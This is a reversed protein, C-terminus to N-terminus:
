RMLEALPPLEPGDPHRLPLFALIAEINALYEAGDQRILGMRELHNLDRSVARATRDGYSAAIEPSLRRVQSRGVGRRELGLAIALRRRRRSADTNPEESFVGHVYNIWAVIVQDVWIRKLQERLGDVLGSVAYMVFESPDRRAASLARYYHSRTRNYHDAMVHASIPPIGARALIDFEVLRATRGNGDGFPHIWAIYLHALIAKLFPVVFPGGVEGTWEDSNMWGCLKTLLEVTRDPPPSRYDGVVVVHGRFEGPVVDDALELDELVMGNFRCLDEPALRPPAGEKIQDIIWNYATVVNDVERGLYEQSEPLQLQGELRHAVEIESLTNGEIATTGHVGKALFVAHLEHATIPRLPVGRIHEIKSSAEGLLAWTKPPLREANFRFSIFAHSDVAPSKVMNNDTHNDLLTHM